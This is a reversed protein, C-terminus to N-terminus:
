ALQDVNTGQLKFVQEALKSVSMGPKESLGSGVPNANEQGASSGQIVYNGIEGVLDQLGDSGISQMSQSISNIMGSM